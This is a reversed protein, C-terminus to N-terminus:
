SSVKEYVRVYNIFFKSPFETSTNPSGPWNGGVALNLILFFPQDFPWHEVNDTYDTKTITFFISDNFAFSM